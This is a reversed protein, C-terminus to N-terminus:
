IGKEPEADRSILEAEARDIGSVPCPEHWCSSHVVLLSSRKELSACPLDCWAKFSRLRATYLSWLDYDVHFISMLSSAYFCRSEGVESSLKKESRGVKEGSWFNYILSSLITNITSCFLWYLGPLALGSGLLSEIFSNTCFSVRKQRLLWISMAQSVILLVAKLPKFCEGEGGWGIRGQGCWGSTM